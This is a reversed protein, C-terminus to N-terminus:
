ADRREFQGLVELAFERQEPPLPDLRTADGSELVEAVPRLFEIATRVGASAHALLSRLVGPWLPKYRAESLARLVGAIVGVRQEDPLGATGEFAALGIRDVGQQGDREFALVFALALAGVRTDMEAQPEQIALLLNELAESTRGLQSLALGRGWFARAVVERPAGELEVVAFFDVLAGQSDGSLGKAGGRAVLAQAVQEKPAGELEIVASYDALEGQADGLSGKGVARNLLASAVVGPRAAPSALVRDFCDFAGQHDGSLGLVVGLELQLDPDGPARQVAERASVLATGLDGRERAWTALKGYAATEYQLRDAVKFDTGEALALAAEEVSGLRLWSAIVLEKAETEHPIGALSAGFYEITMGADLAAGGATRAVKAVMERMVALRHEAEFWVQLTEVFLEIRRRHPHLYRMQYWTRLLQDPVTYFAERGKGGGLVEVVQMDKLRQLQRTVSNLSIRTSRAIDAPTATGGARMIADLIKGQQGSLQNDLIDKLLPTLEDVLKHLTGVASRFDGHNLVEYLMMVLRPNGGTLRTIVQVKARHPSFREAFGTSGDFAARRFLMEEVQDDNLRHLPVPCFYNFFAQDYRELAEFQRVTSGVVMLFPDVMLLRRLTAASQESIARGFLRDLNEIVLILRKGQSESIRQLAVVAIQESQEDSTEASARARESAAEAVGQGALRELTAALLDRLSLVDRLEEPFRVPLWANRLEEDEEIRLCLMRVITTKGAGRPGTILYSTLTKSRGQSRISRVLYDLTHERAAFTSRLEEVPMDDVMYKHTVLAM